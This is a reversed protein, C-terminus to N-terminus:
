VLDLSDRKKEGTTTGTVTEATMTTGTETQTGAIVSVSEAAIVGGTFEVFLLFFFFIFRATTYKRTGANESMSEAATGTM